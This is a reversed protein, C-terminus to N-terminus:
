EFEESEEASYFLTRDANTMSERCHHLLYEEREKRAARARAEMAELKQAIGQTRLRSKIADFMAPSGHLLIGEHLIKCAVMRKFTDFGLQEDVRTMKKVVYDIEERVAPTILAMYKSQYIADDLQEAFSDPVDNALIVVLDIDSGDVLKGTSREPRPVRHAMGYVVDGALIACLRDEPWAEAASGGSTLRERVGEIFRCALDHKERSIAEIRAAVEEKRKELAQPASALGVVSYTLFERLISPSLRAYGELHSDLRLYQRGVTRTQLTDSSRCTQWLTLSDGRIHDKIEAGTLPGKACVLEAIHDELRPM